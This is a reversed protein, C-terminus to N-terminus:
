NRDTPLNRLLERIAVAWSSNPDLELYANWHFRAEEYRGLYVLTEALNSHADAYGPELRLARRYAQVAEALWGTEALANGLNNLSEVYESEQEVAQLYRRAAEKKRDLEYLANGLNFYIEPEDSGLELAREYLHVALEWEGADEALVGQDFLEDAGASAVDLQLHDGSGPTGASDGHPGGSFMALPRNADAGTASPDFQRIDPTNGGQRHFDFLLQGAPDALRGDQLRIQLVKGQEYTELQTLMREAGPLWASLDRISRGIRSTTVGAQTLSHLARAMVVERFDFWALRRTVKV